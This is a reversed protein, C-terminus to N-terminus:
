RGFTLLKLTEVVAPSGFHLLFNVATWLTLPIAVLFFKDHRAVFEFPELSRSSEPSPNQKGTSMTAM